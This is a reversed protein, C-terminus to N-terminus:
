FTGTPLYVPPQEQSTTDNMWALYLQNKSPDAGTFPYALGITIKPKKGNHEQETDISIQGEFIDNVQLYFLYEFNKDLVTDLDRAFSLTDVLPEFRKPLDFLFTELENSESPSNAQAQKAMAARLDAQLSEALKLNRDDDPFFLKQDLWSWAILQSWKKCAIGFTDDIFQIDEAPFTLGELLQALTKGEKRADWIQTKTFTKVTM